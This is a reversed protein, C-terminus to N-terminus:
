NGGSLNTDVNKTDVVQTSDAPTSDASKNVPERIEAVGNNTGEDEPPFPYPMDGPM